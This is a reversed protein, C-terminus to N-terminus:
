YRFTVDFGATLPAGFTQEAFGLAGFDIGQVVYEEDLLNKGWLAFDVTGSGFAVDQLAIRGNVLTRADSTTADILPNDQYGSPYVIAPHYDQKSQWIAELRAQIRGERFAPIPDSDYQAGVTGTTQSVYQFRAVNKADFPLLTLPDATGYEDYQPNIFGMNWDLTIGKVPKALIEFEIGEYTSAGANTVVNVAGAASAVFQSVQQDSAKNRFASVNTQLRGDLWQAKAGVELAKITEPKFPELNVSRTNFGGAKYGKSYSVYFNLDDTLFYQAKTLYTIANFKDKAYGAIPVFVTTSPLLTTEKEDESYRLGGTLRLKDNLINPTYSAQGFVAWSKTSANFAFPNSGPVGYGPFPGGFAPPILNGDTIYNQPNRDSAHEIFYYAGSAFVFRNGGAVKDGYQGNLQLEETFQEHHRENAAVFPIGPIIGGGFAPPLEYLVEEGFQPGAVTDQFKRYGTISKVVLNENLDYEATLNHMTLVIDDTGNLPTNFTDRRQGTLEIPSRLLSAFSPSVATMQGIATGNEQALHTVSYNARFAGGRDYNIALRGARVNESGPDKKDPQALNDFHGGIKKYLFNVTGSLGTDGIEGSDIATRSTIGGFTQVGFKQTVGFDKSPKRTIFNVAGGTTNRGYLTGQPGRLVEVRELDVLDLVSGSLRANIVGDIYVGVPNDNTSLADAAQLGRLSIATDGAGSTNVGTTLNPAIASLDNANTINRSELQAAGLATIAIPVEQLREERKQATVVIDEIAQASVSSAMFPSLLTSAALVLKFNSRYTM